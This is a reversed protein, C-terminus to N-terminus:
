PRPRSSEARSATVLATFISSLRPLAFGNDSAEEM